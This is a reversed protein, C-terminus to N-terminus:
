IDVFETTSVVVQNRGNNKAQYMAIDAAKIIESKEIFINNLYAVGFSATIPPLKKNQYLLELTGVKQCLMEARKLLLEKDIDPTIIIFEEGGYRCIVDSSRFHSKLINAYEILVLDGADHGYDDNFKKFHDIDSMIIGLGHQARACRHIEQELSEEMFRRNFLTTLPDRISQSQLAEKLKINGLSLALNDATIKVLSKISKSDYYTKGEGVKHKAGKLEIHLMGLMEGQTIIPECIYDNVDKSIHKCRLRGDNDLTTHEKGQRLAWCDDPTIVPALDTVGWAAMSEVLTKKDNFLYMSGADGPFIQEAYYSIILYTEDVSRCVQLYTSLQNILNMEHNYQTLEQHSKKLEDESLKQETIDTSSGVFGAFRGQDDIYPEGNDHFYRYEGDRRRLRYEMIFSKCTEFADKFVALCYDRDDPHLANFWAKGGLTEVKERGMFNKYQNNTFIVSGRVDTLWLTVPAYEAVTQFNIEEPTITTRPAKVKDMVNSLEM